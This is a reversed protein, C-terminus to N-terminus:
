CLDHNACRIRSIRYVVHAIGVVNTMTMTNGTVAKGSGGSYGYGCGCGNFILCM